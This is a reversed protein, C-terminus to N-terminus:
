SAAGHLHVDTQPYPISFGREDFGLKIKEILDWKTQLVDSSKVWPWIVFNVSHAGLENIGVMPAPDQLIREDSAVVEELFARVARLDDDYSCGIVLEIRRTDKASYNTISGNTIESNPVIILRNDPTRMRTHFIDIMEVIGATGAAEIYNGVHFPKFLIIMVGAAFNSLSGQLALGVALGAAAVVAAFSTTDIGLRSLAAMVVFVLMATYALNNLFSTLTADLRARLLARNIVRKLLMAVWRGVVFIAIAAVVNLLLSLGRQQLFLLAQEWLALAGTTLDLPPPVPAGNSTTEQALLWHM